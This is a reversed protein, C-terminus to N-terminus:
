SSTSCLLTSRTLSTISEELSMTSSSKSSTALSPIKSSLALKSPHRNQSQRICDIVRHNVSAITATACHLHRFLCHLYDLEDQTM